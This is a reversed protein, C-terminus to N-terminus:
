GRFGYAKRYRDIISSFGYKEPIAKPFENSYKWGLGGEIGVIKSPKVRECKNRESPLFNSIVPKRREVAYIRNRKDLLAFFYPLLIVIRLLRRHGTQM